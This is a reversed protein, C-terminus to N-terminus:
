LPPRFVVLAVPFPANSKAGVFKLRGRLKRVEQAKEVYDHWWSTDTRAPLLCVVTAGDQASEYAKRVWAAIGRGFPPNMWCRRRGWDQQLGDDNEDFYTPAKANDRSACVDLDFPGYSNDVNGFFEHPTEWDTRESSFMGGNIAM